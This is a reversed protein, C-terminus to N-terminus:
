RGRRAPRGPLFWYPSSDTEGRNLRDNAEANENAISDAVLEVAGDWAAYDGPHDDISGGFGCLMLTRLDGQGAGEFPGSGELPDIRARSALRTATGEPCGVAVLAAVLSDSMWPELTMVRVSSSRM